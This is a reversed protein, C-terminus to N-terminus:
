YCADGSPPKLQYTRMKSDDCKVGLDVSNDAWYIKQWVTGPVYTTVGDCEGCTCGAGHEGTRPDKSWGRCEFPRHQILVSGTWVTMLVRDGNKAQELDVYEGSAMLEAYTKKVTANTITM